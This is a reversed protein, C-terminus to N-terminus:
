KVYIIISELLQSVVVSYSLRSFKSKAFTLAEMRVCYYVMRIHKYHTYRGTSEIRMRMNQTHPSKLVFCVVSLYTTTAPNYHIDNMTMMKWIRRDSYHGQKPNCILVPGYASHTPDYEKNSQWKWV